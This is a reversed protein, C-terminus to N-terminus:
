QRKGGKRHEAAVNKLVDFLGKADYDDGKKELEKVVVGKKSVTYGSAKILVTLNIKEEEPPPTPDDSSCAILLGAGLVAGCRLLRPLYAFITSHHRM